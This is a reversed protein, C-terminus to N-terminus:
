YALVLVYKNTLINFDRTPRKFSSPSAVAAATDLNRQSSQNDNSLNSIINFAATCKKRYSHPQPPRDKPDSANPYM